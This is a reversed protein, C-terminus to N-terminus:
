LEYVTLGSKVLESARHISLRRRSNRKTGMQWLVVVVQWDQPVAVKTEIMMEYESKDIPQIEITSIPAWPTGWGLDEDCVETEVKPYTGWNWSDQAVGFSKAFGRKRCTSGQYFKTTTECWPLRQNYTLAYERITGVTIGAAVHPLCDVLVKKQAYMLDKVGSHVFHRKYGRMRVVTEQEEVAEAEAQEESM